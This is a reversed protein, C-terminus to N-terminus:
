LLPYTANVQLLQRHRNIRLLEAAPRVIGIANMLRERAKPMPEEAAAAIWVMVGLTVACLAGNIWLLLKFMPNITISPNTAKAKAM